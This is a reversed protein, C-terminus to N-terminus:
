KKILNECYCYTQPINDKTFQLIARLYKEANEKTYFCISISRIYDNRLEYHSIVGGIVFRSEVIVWSFNKFERKTYTKMRNTATNHYIVSDGCIEFLKIESSYMSENRLEDETAERPYEESEKAKIPAPKKFFM